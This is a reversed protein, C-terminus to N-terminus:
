AGSSAIGAASAAGSRERPTLPGPLGMRELYHTAVWNKVFDIAAGQELFDKHHRADFPKEPHGDLGGPQLSTLIVKANELTTKMTEFNAFQVREVLHDCRNYLVLVPKSTARPLLGSQIAHKRLDPDASNQTYIVVDAIDLLWQQRLATPSATPQLLEQFHEIRAGGGPTANLGGAEVVVIPYEAKMVGEIILEHADISTHHSHGSIARLGLKQLLTSKGTNREGIVGVILPRSVHKRLYHMAVAAAGVRSLASVQDPIYDAAVLAPTLVDVICDKSSASWSSGVQLLRSESMGTAACLLREGARALNPESSALIQQLSADDDAARKACQEYLWLLLNGYNLQLQKLRLKAAISASTGPTASDVRISHLWRGSAAVSLAATAAIGFALPGTFVTAAALAAFGTVAIFISGATVGAVQKKLLSPHEFSGLRAVIAAAVRSQQRAGPVWDSDDGAKEPRSLNLSPSRAVLPKNDFTLTAAIDKANQAVFDVAAGFGHERGLEHVAAIIIDLLDAVASSKKVVSLLGLQVGSRPDEPTLENCQLTSLAFARTFIDVDLGEWALELPSPREGVDVDVSQSDGNPSMFAYVQVRLRTIGLAKIPSCAGQFELDSLGSSVLRLDAADSANPKTSWKLPRSLDSNSIEVAGSLELLEGSLKVTLAQQATATAGHVISIRPQPKPPLFCTALLPTLEHRPSLASFNGGTVARLLNLYTSLNHANVTEAGVPSTPGRKLVDLADCSKRYVSLKVGEAVDARLFAFAGLPVYSTLLRDKSGAWLSQLATHIPAATVSSIVAASLPTMGLAVSVSHSIAAGIHPLAAVVAGRITEPVSLLLNPVADDPNVVHMVAEPLNARPNHLMFQSVFAEDFVLPSGFTICRFNELLGKDPTSNCFSEYTLLAIAGGLSHGCLVVRSIAKEQLLKLVLSYYAPPIQASAAQFGAHVKGLQRTGDAGYVRLNQLWDDADFSGRFAWFLVPADGAAMQLDALLMACAPKYRPQGEVYPTELSEFFSHRYPSTASTLQIRCGEVTKAGAANGSSYTWLSALLAHFVDPHKLTRVNTADLREQLLVADDVDRLMPEAEASM